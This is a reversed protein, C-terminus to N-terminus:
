TQKAEQIQMPMVKKFNPFNETIIKNLVNCITKAQVEGEKFGM